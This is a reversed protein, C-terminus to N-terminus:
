RNERAAALDELFLSVAEPDPLTHAANTPGEGVHIGVDGAGLRPFVSEDTVDDGVFLIREAGLRHRLLDVADGKDITSVTAEMVKKGEIVTVGPLAVLRRRLEDLDETGPDAQRYHFVVSRTKAEVRAAAIRSATEEVIRRAEILAESVPAEYNGDDAGHEGILIMRPDPFRTLLDHRRRGSIVAVHTRPLAALRSLAAAARPLPAARDPNVVIEALTGDFDSAVLLTTAGALEEIM